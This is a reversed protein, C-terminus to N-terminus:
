KQSSSICVQNRGNHKAQYLAKDTDSILESVSQGQWQAVGCSFTVRLENHDHILRAFNKRVKDMVAAAQEIDADVLVVAFEEGGYRGIPDTKRLSQRLFLSLNRIVTDGVPHGYQDNVQKFHDIDIMAFSVPIDENAQQIAQQLAKQLHTHNLLGTLSDRAILDRLQKSRDVRNRITAILHAPNVPKTLFDDGGEAMAALQRDRDEEGSLYIIPLHFYEPQQRIARSLEMGSCEPMYMDMLIIDAAFEKLVALVKLPENVIRTIMGAKNLMNEAHISQTRSDDVILIKPVPPPASDLLNELQGIIAHVNSEDFYGIGGCRMAQLQEQLTPPEHNWTFIVPLPTERSDQLQKAMLLGDGPSGFNHDLIIVAPHRQQLSYLLDQPTRQLEPRYGFYQMQEAMTMAQNTNQIAIYVPKKQPIVAAASHCDTHRLATKSLNNIIKNIAQLHESDATKGKALPLLLNRLALAQTQHKEADFRKAFRILKETALILENLTDAQWDREPLQRWLDIIQRVQNIVRYSFHQKIRDAPSLSDSM